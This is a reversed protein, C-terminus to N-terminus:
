LISALSKSADAACLCNRKSRKENTKWCCFGKWILRSGVHNAGHGPQNCCNICERIKKTNNKPHFEPHKSNMALVPTHEVVGYVWCLVKLFIISFFVCINCSSFLWDGSSFYFASLLYTQMQKTSLIVRLYTNNGKYYLSYSTSIYQGKTIYLIARLYINDRELSISINRDLSREDHRGRCTGSLQVALLFPPSFPWSYCPHGPFM